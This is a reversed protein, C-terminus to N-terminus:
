FKKQAVRILQATLDELPVDSHAWLTRAFDKPAPDINELYVKNDYNIFSFLFCGELKFEGIVKLAIFKLKDNLEADDIKSFYYNDETGLYGLQSREGQLEPQLMVLRQKIAIKELGADLENEDKYINEGDSLPYGLKDAIKHIEDSSSILKELKIVKGKIVELDLKKLILKFYERDSLWHYQGSDLGCYPIKLCSFYGGLDEPTNLIVLDLRSILKGYHKFRIVAGASLYKIVQVEEDNLTFIGQDYELFLFNVKLKDLLSSLDQKLEPDLNGKSSVIGVVARM